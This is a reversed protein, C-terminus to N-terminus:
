FRALRENEKRRLDDTAVITDPRHNDEYAVSEHHVQALRDVMGPAIEREGIIVTDAM